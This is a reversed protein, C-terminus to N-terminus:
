AQRLFAALYAAMERNDVPVDLSKDAEATEADNLPNGRRLEVLARSYGEDFEPHPQLSIAAGNGYILGANPTFESALFVKAGPPPTIVQDQHSAAISFKDPADSLFEPKTVVDYTHRGLGWGRDSKRVEGGLADAMIQHGFCIGLMPTKAAYADRIFGRLPEMWDPNDYVGQRAGTVIIGGPGTPDPFPDGDLIYATEFTFDADASAFMDQFQTPYRGFRDAFPKPTEGVQLITLKM